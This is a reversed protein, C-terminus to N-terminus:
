NFGNIKRSLVSFVSSGSFSIMKLRKESKCILCSEGDLLNTKFRGDISIYVPHDSRSTIRIIEDPAYVVSRNFFSHPCIPTVTISDLSHSVIPGGASLSYATSGQPTAVIVGDSRLDFKDDGSSVTYDSIGFYDGDSIVVDNVALPTLEEGEGNSNFKIARLLMKEECIFEGDLLRDFLHIEEPDVSSYYGVRGTNVCLVPIDHRLAMPAALIVSGDGGVLIILEADTPLSECFLCKRSLMDRHKDQVYVTFGLELLKDAVRRTVFLDNDRSANPYLFVKNM